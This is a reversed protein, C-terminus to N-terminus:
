SKSYIYFSSRIISSPGLVLGPVPGRWNTSRTTYGASNVARYTDDNGGDETGVSPNPADGGNGSSHVQLM